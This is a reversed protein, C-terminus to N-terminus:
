LKNHELHDVFGAQGTAEKIEKQRARLEKEKQISQRELEIKREQKEIKRKQEIWAPHTITNEYKQLEQEKENFWDLSCVWPFAIIVVFTLVTLGFIQPIQWLVCVYGLIMLCTFLICALYETLFKKIPGLRSPWIKERFEDCERLFNDIEELDKNM